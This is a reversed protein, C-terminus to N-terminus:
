RCGRGTSSRTPFRDRDVDALQAEVVQMTRDLAAEAVEGFRLLEVEPDLDLLRQRLRQDGVDLPQLLDDLVQQRVRELERVVAADRERDRRGVAAPREVVGLQLVRALHDRERDRVGADADRGVLLLDDELRELLGVARGRALVAAGAEAERDAALQRPQEAALDPEDARGADAAGEGQVQRLAVVRRAARTRLAPEREIGLLRAAGGAGVVAAGCGADAATRQGPHRDVGLRRGGRGSSKSPSIKAFTASSSRSEIELPSRTISITSFSRANEFTSSSAARSAPKL